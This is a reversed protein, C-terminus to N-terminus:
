HAFEHTKLYMNMCSSQKASFGNNDTLELDAGNDVLLDFASQFENLAAFHIAARNESGSRENININLKDKYSLLIEILKCVEDNKINFAIQLAKSYNREKVATLFPGFSMQDKAILEIKAILENHFDGSSTVPSKNGTLLATASLKEDGYEKCLNEQM